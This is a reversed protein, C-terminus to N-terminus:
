EKRLYFLQFVKVMHELEYQFLQRVQLSVTKPSTCFAMFCIPLNQKHLNVPLDYKKVLRFGNSPIGPILLILFRIVYRLRFGPLFFPFSLFVQPTNRNHSHFM